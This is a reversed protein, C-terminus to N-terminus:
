TSALMTKTRDFLEALTPNKTDLFSIRKLLWSMQYEGLARYSEFQSESFWQDETGEHPFAPSGAAYALVAQPAGPLWSPKIYIIEGCSVADGREDLYVISGYAIGRLTAARTADKEADARAAIWPTRLKIRVPFDIEAKRIAMGLDFYHCEEDCAADIVVIRKCHRHIMEYIGLNEFHGGDSLYIAPADARAQGLLENLLAGLSNPPKARTIPHDSKIEQASAQAPNPYWAGLRVNFLTM